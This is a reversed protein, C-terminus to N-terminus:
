GRCHMEEAYASTDYGASPYGYVYGADVHMPGTPYDPYYFHGTSSPQQCYPGYEAHYGPAVHYTAHVAPRYNTQESESNGSRYSNQRSRGSSAITDPHKPDWLIRNSQSRGGRLQKQSHREHSSSRGAPEYSTETEAVSAMTTGVPLHIIGGVKSSSTANEYSHYETNQQRDLTRISAAPRGNSAATNESKVKCVKLRENKSEGHNSISDGGSDSSRRLRQDRQQRAKSTSKTAVVRASKGGSHDHYNCSKVSKNSAPYYKKSASSNTVVLGEFKNVFEPENREDDVGSDNVDRDESTLIAATPETNVEDCKSIPEIPKAKPRKKRKRNRKQQSKINLGASTNNENCSDDDSWEDSPPPPIDGWNLVPKEGFDNIQLDGKYDWELQEEETESQQNNLTKHASDKVQSAKCEAENSILNKKKEVQLKKQTNASLQGGVRQKTSSSVAEVAEVASVSLALKTSCNPVSHNLTPPPVPLSLNPNTKSEHQARSSLNLRLNKVSSKDPKTQQNVCASMDNDVTVKFRQVSQCLGKTDTVSSEDDRQKHTDNQRPKPVYRRIEPKKDRRREGTQNEVVSPSSERCELTSSKDHYEANESHVNVLESEFRKSTLTTSRGTKSSYSDSHRLVDDIDLVSSTTKGAAVLDQNSPTCLSARCNSERQPSNRDCDPPEVSSSKSLGSLKSQGPVYISREPKV